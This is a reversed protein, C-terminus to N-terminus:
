RRRRRLSGQGRWPSDISTFLFDEGRFEGSGRYRAGTEDSVILKVSDLYAESIEYRRRVNIGPGMGTVQQGDFSVVMIGFQLALLSQLMPELQTEPRFNMLTWDGQLRQNATPRADRPASGSAGCSVLSLAALLSFFKLNTSM